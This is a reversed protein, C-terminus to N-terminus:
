FWKGDFTDDVTEINGCESCVLHSCAKKKRGTYIRTGNVIKEEKESFWVPEYQGGCKCYGYRKNDDM